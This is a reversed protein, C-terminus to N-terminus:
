RRVVTRRVRPVAAASDHRGREGRVARSGAALQPRIRAFGPVPMGAAVYVIWGM